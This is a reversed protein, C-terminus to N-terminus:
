YTLDTVSHIALRDNPTKIKVCGVVASSRCGTGLIPKHMQLGVCKQYDTRVLQYM